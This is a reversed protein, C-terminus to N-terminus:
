PLMVPLQRKYVDLHTYSVPELRSCALSEDAAIIMDVGAVLNLKGIKRDLYSPTWFGVVELYVKMGDKEFRFDPILVHTGAM